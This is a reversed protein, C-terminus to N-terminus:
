DLNTNWDSVLGTIASGVIQNINGVDEPILSLNQYKGLGMRIKRLSGALQYTLKKAHKAERRVTPWHDNQTFIPRNSEEYVPLEFEDQYALGQIELCRTEFRNLCHHITQLHDSIEFDLLEEDTIESLQTIIHSLRELDEQINEIQASLRTRQKGIPEEILCIM